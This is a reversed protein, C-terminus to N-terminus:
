SALLELDLRRLWATSMREATARVQAEAIAGAVTEFLPVGVLAEARLVISARDLDVLDIRDTGMAGVLGDLLGILDVHGGREVLVAIDLDRPCPEEPRAASGFLVAGAVGCRIFLEDLAGVQCLDVLRDAARRIPDMAGM